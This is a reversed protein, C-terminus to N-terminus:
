RWRKVAGIGRQLGQQKYTRHLILAQIFALCECAPLSCAGPANLRRGSEPCSSPHAQLWQRSGARMSQQTVPVPKEWKFFNNYLLSSIIVYPDATYLWFRKRKNGIVRCSINAIQCSYAFVSVHCSFCVTGSLFNRSM